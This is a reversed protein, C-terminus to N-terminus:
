QIMAYGCIVGEQFSLAGAFAPITANIAQMDTLSRGSLYTEANDVEPQLPESSECIYILVFMYRDGVKKKSVGTSSGSSAGVKSSLMSPAVGTPKRSRAKIAKITCDKARTPAASAM